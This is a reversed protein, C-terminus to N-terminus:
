EVLLCSVQHGDEVGVTPPDVEKCRAFVQPCRPHFRCGSPVDVPNPTEGQLIVRQRRLRPNPVPVVSLLARTYPHQPNQLV